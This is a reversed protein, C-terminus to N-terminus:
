IGGRFDFGSPRNSSVGKYRRLRIPAQGLLVAVSDPEQLGNASRQSPTVTPLSLTSASGPPNSALPKDGRIRPQGRGTRVAHICPPVEVERARTAPHRKLRRGEHDRAYLEALDDLTLESIWTATDLAQAVVERPTRGKKVSLTGEADLALLDFGRGMDLSSRVVLSTALASSAVPVPADAEVRWIGFEVPMRWTGHRERLWRRWEAWRSDSSVAPNPGGSLQSTAHTHANGTQSSARVNSGLRRSELDRQLVELAVRRARAPQISAHVCLADTAAVAALDGAATRVRSSNRENASGPYVLAAIANRRRGLRPPLRRIVSVGTAPV